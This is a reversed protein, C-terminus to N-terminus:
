ARQTQHFDLCAPEFPLALYNLIRTLQGSLDDVVQEYNVQLIQGPFVRHWHQMLEVYGQYYSALDDLDYSFEQGQAFLQKYAGFCCAMPDRRADIIKANPLILKILGIHRFNNPMKDIFFPAGQRHVRTQELYRRGMEALKDTPLQDLVAPYRPSENLLQRGGLQHVFASIDGLEMTGDVMSHSSLIQELLTSGARPLGVIFIPDPATEGYGSLEAVKAQSFYGQQREFSQRMKDSDYNNNASSEAKKLRNGKAYYDFALDYQKADEYGKALAFCLHYRDIPTTQTSGEHVSMQQLQQADFRYTKLNALSWYADGLSPQLQHSKRYCDVAKSHEGITKYAHGMVLPIHANDPLTKEIEKYIAIAEIFKGVAVCQNAYCTSFSPNDPQHTRLKTAQEYALAFKQRKHLVQVYDYRAFVNDPALEVCSALLFEAEDLIHLKDAIVALLRMAEVHHPQKILFDRCLKEAKFLKNEHTMSIISLLERPLKSLHAVNAMARHREHPHPNALGTDTLVTIAQWSALLGPNCEVAKLYVTLAQKSQNQAKYCHGIEQYCRGYAPTLANLKQLTQLAPELQNLYRQCVAKLYLVGVLDPSQMLLATCNKEAEAFQGQKVQLEIAQVSASSDIITM